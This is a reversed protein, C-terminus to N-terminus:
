PAAPSRAMPARKSEDATASKSSQKADRAATLKAAREFGGARLARVGVAEREMHGAEYLELERQLTSSWRVEYAFRECVERCAKWSDVANRVQRQQVQAVGRLELADAKVYPDFLKGAVGNAYDFYGEAEANAGLALCAKGAGMCLPALLATAEIEVAIALGSRYRDLGLEPKGVEMAVDGAGRLCMTQRLRNKGEDYVFIAGYKELAEAYRKYAFDVAALQFLADMRQPTPRSTDQAVRVLRDLQREASFDLEIVAAAPNQNQALVPVLQPAQRDDWLIFRHRETWAEWCCLSQAFAAYGAADACEHPLLVWVVRASAPVVGACYEATARFRRAVSHRPDLCVIPLPPWPPLGEEKRIGNAAEVQHQVVTALHNMWATVTPCAGIGLIYVHTSGQRGQAELLKAPVALDAQSSALVLAVYEDDEVFETLAADLDLFDENM